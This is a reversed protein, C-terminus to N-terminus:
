LQEATRAICGNLRLGELTQFLTRTREPDPYRAFHESLKTRWSGFRAQAWLYVAMSKYLRFNQDPTDFVIGVEPLFLTETDTYVDEAAEIKLARGSLGRVFGGLVGLVDDLVVGAERIRAQEAFGAVNRFVDMAPYVGSRDYIDMAHIIWQEVEGADQLRTFAQRAHSAFQYASEANTKEIVEVWHLVFDQASRDLRALERAADTASRRSSLAAWLLEDLREEIEHANLSRPM